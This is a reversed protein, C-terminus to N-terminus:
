QSTVASGFREVGATFLADLPKGDITGGPEISLLRAITPHVDVMRVTELKGRAPLGGGWAYFVGDNGETGPAYGHAARLGAGLLPSDLFDKGFVGLPRLFFPWLDPDATYYGPKAALILEPVRPGSGLRAYEPLSEKRWVEFEEYRALARYAAEVRASRDRDEFYLFGTTGTTVARADIEHRRLIRTVNVIRTVPVMGHDSAVLVSTPREPMGDVAALIRGLATDFARVARDCEPSEPGRFHAEHDPGRFYGLILRPRLADPLRLYREVEQARADDGLYGETNRPVRAEAVANSSVYSATSGGQESWQGWWGLAATRIGQREAATQILECKELWRPETSHNMLGLKPDFFKDTVVGHSSPWCGTSLSVWTPGSIAPFTPEFRHTWTGEARLRDLNPTDFREIMSGNLGDVLLAVVTRGHPRLQGARKRALLGPGRQLGESAGAGLILALIGALGTFFLARRLARRREGFWRKAMTWFYPVCV